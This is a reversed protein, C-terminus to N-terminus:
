PFDANRNHSDRIGCGSGPPFTPAFPPSELHRGVVDRDLFPMAKRHRRHRLEAPPGHCQGKHAAGAPEYSQGARTTSGVASANTGQPMREGGLATFPHPTGSRGDELRAAVSDETPSLM